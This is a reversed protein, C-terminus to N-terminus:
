QLYNTMKIWSLPPPVQTKEAFFNVMHKVTFIHSYRLTFFAELMVFPIFHCRLPFFSAFGRGFLSVLEVVFVVIYTGWSKKMLFDNVIFFCYVQLLPSLFIPPCILCLMVFLNVDYSLFLIVFLCKQKQTCYIMKWAIGHLKMLKM